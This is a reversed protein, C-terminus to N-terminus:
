HPNGRKIALRWLSMVGWVILSFAVAYPVLYGPNGYMQAWLALPGFDLPWAVFAFNTGFRQNFPYVMVAYAAVFLLPRLVHDRQPRIASLRFALRPAWLTGGAGRAAAREGARCRTSRPTWLM